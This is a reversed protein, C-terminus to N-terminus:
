NADRQKGERPNKSGLVRIKVYYVSTGVVLSLPLAIPLSTQTTVTTSAMFGDDTVQFALISNISQLNKRNKVSQM